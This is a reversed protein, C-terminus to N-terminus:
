APNGPTLQNGTNGPNGNGKKDSKEDIEEIMPNGLKKLKELDDQTAARIITETKVGKSTKVKKIEKGKLNVGVEDITTILVDHKQYIDKLKFM